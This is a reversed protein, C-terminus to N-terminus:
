RFVAEGVAFLRQIVFPPLIAAMGQEYPSFQTEFATSARRKRAMAARDVVSMSMRHWPVQPDDPRAWHWMWVPYELLASGTRSVAAGAARRRALHGCV